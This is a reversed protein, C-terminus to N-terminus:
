EDIEVLTTSVVQFFATVVRANQWSQGSVVTTGISPVLKDRITPHIGLEHGVVTYGSKWVSRGGPLRERMKIKQWQNVTSIPRLIGSM